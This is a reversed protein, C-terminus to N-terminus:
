ARVQDSSGRRKRQQPSTQRSSGIISSADTAVEEHQDREGEKDGAPARESESPETSDGWHTRCVPLVQAHSANPMLVRHCLFSASMKEM